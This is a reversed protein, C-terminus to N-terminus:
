KKALNIQLTLDYEKFGQKKYFRIGMKNQASATVSIYNVKNNKCWNIFDRTLKAGFGKSRFKKLILMNELGAYKANRRFSQRQSIGGCLYGIIERKNEVIEVFGDKKTIRDRFYKKGQTYTWKLNLTKDFERYEKKFLDLNLGLIAKLDKATAKRFIFNNM